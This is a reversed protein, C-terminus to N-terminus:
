KEICNQIQMWHLKIEEDTLGAEDVVEKMYSYAEKCRHNKYNGWAVSDKFALNNPYAKLAKKVLMLGKKADLDYDILIYGYYNNSCSNWNIYIM